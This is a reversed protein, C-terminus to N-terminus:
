EILLMSNDITSLIENRQTLKKRRQTNLRHFKLNIEMWPMTLRLWFCLSQIEINLKPLSFHFSRTGEPLCNLLSFYIFVFFFPFSNFCLSSFWVRENWEDWTSKTHTCKHQTSHLTCKVNRIDIYNALAVYLCFECTEPVCEIHIKKTFQTRVSNQLLYM